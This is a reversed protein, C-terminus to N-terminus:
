EEPTAPTTEADAAPKPETDPQRHGSHLMAARVMDGSGYMELGAAYIEGSPYDELSVEDTVAPREPQQKAM